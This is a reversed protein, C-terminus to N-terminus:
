KVKSAELFQKPILPGFAAPLNCVYIPHRSRIPQPASPQGTLPSSSGATGELVM